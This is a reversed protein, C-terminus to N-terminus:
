LIHQYNTSLKRTGKVWQRLASSARAGAQFALGVSGANALLRPQNAGDGSHQSSERSRSQTFPCLMGHGQALDASRLPLLARVLTGSSGSTIQIKRGFQPFSIRLEQYTANGSLHGETTEVQGIEANVM